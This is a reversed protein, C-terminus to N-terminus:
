SVYAKINKRGNVNIFVSIRSISYSPDVLPFLFEYKSEPFSFIFLPVIWPDLKFWSKLSNHMNSIDRYHLSVM